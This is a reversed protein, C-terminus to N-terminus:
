YKYRGGGAPAGVSADYMNWYMMGIQHPTDLQWMVHGMHEHLKESNWVIAGEGCSRLVFARARMRPSSQWIRIPEIKGDM